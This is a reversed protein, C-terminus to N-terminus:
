GANPAEDTNNVRFTRANTRLARVADELQPLLEADVTLGKPGPVLTGDAKPLWVRLDAFTRGDFQELTARVTERDRKQFEAVVAVIDSSTRGDGGPTSHTADPPPSV